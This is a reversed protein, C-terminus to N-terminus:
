LWMHRDLTSWLILVSFLSQPNMSDVGLNIPLGGVLGGSVHPSVRSKFVEM